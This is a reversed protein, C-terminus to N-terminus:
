GPIVDYELAQAARGAMCQITIFHLGEQSVRWISSVNSFVKM